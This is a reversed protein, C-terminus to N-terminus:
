QAAKATFDHQGVNERIFEIIDEQLDNPLEDIGSTLDSIILDLNFRGNLVYIPSEKYSNLKQEGDDVRMHNFHSGTKVILVHEDKTKGYCFEVSDIDGKDDLYLYLDEDPNSFWRRGKDKVEIERLLSM